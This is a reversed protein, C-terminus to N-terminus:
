KFISTITHAFSFIITVILALISIINARSQKGEQSSKWQIIDNIRDSLIKHEGDFRDRTLFTAAQKELQARFQNMGELRRDMDIKALDTAKTNFVLETALRKELDAIRANHYEKLEAIRIDYHDKLTISDEM